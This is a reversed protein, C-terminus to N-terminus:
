SAGDKDGHLRAMLKDLRERLQAQREFAAAVEEKMGPVVGTKLKGQVEPQKEHVDNHQGVEGIAPKEDVDAVWKDPYVNELLEAPIEAAEVADEEPLVLVDEDVTLIQTEPADQIDEAADAVDPLEAEDPVEEAKKGHWSTVVQDRGVFSKGKHKAAEARRESRTKRDEYYSYHYNRSYKSYGYYYYHSYYRGIRSVVTNNLVCGVIRANINELQEIAKRLHSRRNTGPRVVMLAGDCIVSLISAESVFLVPPVDLIVWQYKERADLLLAQMKESGLLESPNPSQPGAVVIDLNEVSKGNYQFHQVADEFNAQGTLVSTLGVEPKLRFIKHLMPRHFDADMLLVRRGSQAIVMALNAATTTKGEGPKCSTLALVRTQGAPISFFLSTRLNRYSEAISSAPEILSATGRSRFNDPLDSRDKMRPIFGLLPMHFFHRLDEPTKVTDDINEFLFALGVGLVLGFMLAALMASMRNPGVPASPVRASEVVIVNPRTFGGSVDVERMRAVLADFLKEHRSVENKLKALEFSERGLELAVVEEEEYQEDIRGEQDKIEKLRSLMSRIVDRLAGNFKKKLLSVDKKASKLRPHDPGYVDSLEIVEKEAEALQRDATMVSSDRKISRLSRLRENRQVTTQHQDKIIDRVVGLQASLEIRELQIATLKDNLNKMRMIVPQDDESSSYSIVSAQKHFAQLASESKLLAEEEKDREKKLLVFAESHIKIRRDFQYEEFAHAVANAVKSVRLPKGGRAIVVIFHTGSLHKASVQGRLREWAEPPSAPVADMAGLLTRRAENLLNGRQGVRSVSDSLDGPELRKVAEELIAKTKTLEAQTKYYDPDWWAAEQVIGQFNM